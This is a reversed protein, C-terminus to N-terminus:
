GRFLAWGAMFVLGAAMAFAYHYLYGTQVKHTLRAVWQSANAFGDPGLRDIVEDDGRQWLTRGLIRVFRVFIFDYFADFSRGKDNLLKGLAKVPRVFLFDYIEDVYGSRQAAVRAPGLKETIKGRMDPRRLYLYSACAIGALALLLPALRVSLPAHDGHPGLSSALSGHWFDGEASSAFAGHAVFGVFAAGLALPVLPALMIWPAEHAHDYVQPESRPRGHFTMILLRWSYFGTMFAALLGMGFAAFGFSTGRMFASELIMDKSYFGSFGFLGDVGIGALALLGIWMMAYTAPLRRALGGMKRMDQEGGLAHIVCGAALFLLAKFFAHTTLHFMSAGYASVGAAFVMYGLQSMTSYAIVRKIDYQAMGILAAFVATVAGVIAVVALVDPALEFLPSLRALMFVGATVMTAAHILASVPTPGEMADPLWVHLGIQASKGMAGIFFLAPLVTLVPVSWGLFDYRQGVLLPASAFLGDFDLTGFYQFCGFMGLLFGVDGVRNVLFAKIAAANAKPKEMWFGILLYSSLGVGEWGFFMQLLNDASVLMLMFFTFLSLFAMFRPVSKDHAMYGVSYIHVLSSVVTVVMMMLCSLTDLRVAWDARLAGAEIWTGLDHTRAAGGFAVDAFVFVSFVAALSVPLCTALQAGRDGLFRGGFGALAAGLLPLFIVALDILMM